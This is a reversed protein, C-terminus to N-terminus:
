KGGGILPFAFRYTLGATWVNHDGSDIFERGYSFNTRVDPRIWYSWGAFVRKANSDPLEGMDGGGVMGIASPAFFQEFRIEAQSKRMFAQWLPVRSM